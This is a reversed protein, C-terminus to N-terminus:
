YNLGFYLKAADLFQLIKKKIKSQFINDNFNKSKRQNVQYIQHGFSQKCIKKVQYFIVEQQCFQLQLIMLIDLFYKFKRQNQVKINSFIDISITGDM